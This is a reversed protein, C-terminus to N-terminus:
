WKRLKTIKPAAVFVSACWEDVTTRCFSYPSCKSDRIITSPKQLFPARWVYTTKELLQAPLRHTWCWCPRGNSTLTPFAVRDLFLLSSRGIDWNKGLLLNSGSTTERDWQRRQWPWKSKWPAQKSREAAVSFLSFYYRLFKGSSLLCLWWIFNTPMMLVIYLDM